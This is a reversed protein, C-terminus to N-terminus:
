KGYVKGRISDLNHIHVHEGKKIDCIAIGIVEGYKIVYENKNIKKLAIKHGIPIDNMAIVKEGNKQGIINVLTQKKINDLATAVNDKEEIKIANVM